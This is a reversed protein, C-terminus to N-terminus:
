YLDPRRRYIIAAALWFGSTLICLITPVLTPEGDTRNLLEGIWFPPFVGGLLTIPSSLLPLLSTAALPTMFKSLALAEVRHAALKPLGIVVTAAQVAAFALFPAAQLTNEVLLISALAAIGVSLIAATAARYAILGSRGLPTTELSGLVGEDRDEVVLMGSTWGVLLGPLALVFPLVLSSFESVGIQNQAFRDVGSGGFAFILAPAFAMFVVSLLMPERAVNRLDLSALAALRKPTLRLPLNMM